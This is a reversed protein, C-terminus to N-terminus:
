FIDLGFLFHVLSTSSLKWFDPMEPRGPCTEMELVHRKKYMAAVVAFKRRFDLSVNGFESKVNVIGRGSSFSLHPFVLPETPRLNLEPIGSTKLLFSEFNSYM